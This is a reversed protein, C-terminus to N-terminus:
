NLHGVVGTVKRWLWNRMTVTDMILVSLYDGVLEMRKPTHYLTQIASQLYMLYNTNTKNINTNTRFAAFNAPM